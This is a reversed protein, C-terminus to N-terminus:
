KGPRKGFAEDVATLAAEYRKRAAAAKAQADAFAKKAAALHRAREEALKRAAAEADRANDLDQEALKLGFEAQQLDRHAAGARQQSQMIASERSAAGAAPTQASGAEQWLLALAVLIAIRM